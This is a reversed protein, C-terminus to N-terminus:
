RVMLAAYGSKERWEIIQRAPPESKGERQIYLHQLNSVRMYRAPPPPNPAPPRPATLGACPTLTFGVAARAARLRRCRDAQGVTVRARVSRCAGARERARVRRRAGVRARVRECAGARIYYFVCSCCPADAECVEQSTLM